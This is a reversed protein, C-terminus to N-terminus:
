NQVMNFILTLTERICALAEESYKHGNFTLEEISASAGSISVKAELPYEKGFSLTGKLINTKDDFTGSLYMDMFDGANLNNFYSGNEDIKATGWSSIIMAAMELSIMEHLENKGYRHGGITLNGSIDLMSSYSYSGSISKTQMTTSTGNATITISAAFDNYTMTGSSESSQDASAKVTGQAEMSGVTHVSYVANGINVNLQLPNKISLDIEQIYEPEKTINMTFTNGNGLDVTGGTQPVKKAIASTIPINARYITLYDEPMQDKTYPVYLVDDISQNSSGVTFTADSGPLIVSATGEKISVKNGTIEVTGSAPALADGKMSVALPIETVEESSTDLISPKDTTDSNVRYGQIAGNEVPLEYIFTGSVTFNGYKYDEYKANVTLTGNEAARSVAGAVATSSTFSDTFSLGTSSKGSLYVNLGDTIFEEPHFEKMLETDASSGPNPSCASILAMVLIAVVLYITKKM